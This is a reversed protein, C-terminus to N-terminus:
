AGERDLARLLARASRCVTRQIGPDFGDPDAYYEADSRLEPLAPDDARVWVNRKTEKVAEPTPLDRWQHDFYFAAPIKITTQDSM